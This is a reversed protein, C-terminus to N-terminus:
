IVIVGEEFDLQKARGFLIAKPMVKILHVRDEEADIERRVERLIQSLERPELVTELASKQGGMAYAYVVKATRTRRKDDKIDYAVLFRAM